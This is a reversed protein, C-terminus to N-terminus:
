SRISRMYRTWPNAPVARSWVCWMFNLTPRGEGTNDMRWTMPLVFSPPFQHFSSVRSRASWFSLPLIFAIDEIGLIVQAHQLFADALNFPPNTIIASALPKTSKLFDVPQGFGRDVLDTSVVDFGFSTLERSM